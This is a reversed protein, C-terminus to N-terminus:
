GIEVSYIAIKNSGSAIELSYIVVEISYVIIKKLYKVEKTLPILIAKQSERGLNYLSYAIM